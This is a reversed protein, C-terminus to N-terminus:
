MRVITRYVHCVWPGANEHCGVRIARRLKFSM